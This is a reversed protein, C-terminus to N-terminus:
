RSGTRANIQRLADQSAMVVIGNDDRLHLRLTPVSAKTGWKALMKAARNRAEWAYSGLLKIAVEEAIPGMEELANAAFDRDTGKYVMLALPLCARPDKIFGLVKETEWRVAHEPDNLRQIPEPHNHSTTSATLKQQAWRSFVRVVLAKDAASTPAKTTDASCGVTPLAILALAALVSLLRM